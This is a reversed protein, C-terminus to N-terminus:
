VLNVQLDKNTSSYWANQWMWRKWTSWRWWRLLLILLLTSRATTEEKKIRLRFSNHRIDQKYCHATWSVWAHLMYKKEWTRNNQIWCQETTPTSSTAVSEWWWWLTTFDRNSDCENQFTTKVTTQQYCGSTIANCWGNSLPRCSLLAKHNIVMFSFNSALDLKSIM